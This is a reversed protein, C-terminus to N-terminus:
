TDDDDDADDFAAFLLIIIILISGYAYCEDRQMSEIAIIRSKSDDIFGKWYTNIFNVRM